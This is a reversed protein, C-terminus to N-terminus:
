HIALDPILLKIFLEISKSFLHKNTPVSVIAPRAISEENAFEEDFTPSTDVPVDLVNPLPTQLGISRFRVSLLIM